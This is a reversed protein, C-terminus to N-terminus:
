IQGKRKADRWEDRACVFSICEGETWGAAIHDACRSIRMDRAASINRQKDRIGKETGLGYDTAVEVDSRLMTEPLHADVVPVPQLFLMHHVWQEFTRRLIQRFAAANRTGTPMTEEMVAAARYADRRKDVSGVTISKLESGM